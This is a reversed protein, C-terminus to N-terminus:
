SFLPMYLLRVAIKLVPNAVYPFFQFALLVGFISFGSSRAFNLMKLTVDEPLFLGLVSYGDLPPMPLLNLTGLLVNLIFMISLFTAMGEVLGSSSVASVLQTGAVVSPLQFVGQALGIHMCVAALIALIFNTVPGALAMLAARRPYRIQWFPDFPASGWGFMSTGKSTLLTVLPIVVLGFPERKVHPVPDLSVQGGAYATLDGGWKAVLAHAAEHCVTSLLFAVYWLPILALIDSSM